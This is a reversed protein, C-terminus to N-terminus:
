EAWRLNHDSANSVFEGVEVVFTDPINSYIHDVGGWPTGNAHSAERMINRIPALTWHSPLANMDGVLISKGSFYSGIVSSIMSAQAHREADSYIGLHTGHLAIDGWPTQVVASLLVRSEGGQSPLSTKTALKLPYKSIIVNGYKRRRGWGCQFLDGPWDISPSFYRYFYARLMYQGIEYI